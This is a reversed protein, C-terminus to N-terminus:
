SYVDVGGFRVKRFYFFSKNEICIWLVRGTKLDPLVTPMKSVSARSNIAQLYERSTFNKSNM